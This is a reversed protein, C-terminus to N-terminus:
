IFNRKNSYLFSIYLIWSLFSLNIQINVFCLNLHLLIINWFAMKYGERRGFFSAGTQLIISLPTNIQANKSFFRNASQLISQIVPIVRHARRCCINLTQFLWEFNAGNNLINNKAFSKFIWLIFCCAYTIKLLIGNCNM